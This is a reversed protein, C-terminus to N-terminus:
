KTEAVAQGLITMMTVAVMFSTIASIVFPLVVTL